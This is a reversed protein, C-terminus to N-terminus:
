IGGFLKQLKNPKAQSYDQTVLPCHLLVLKTPNPIVAGVYQGILSFNAICNSFFSKYFKGTHKIDVLNPFM